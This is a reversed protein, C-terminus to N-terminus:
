VSMLAMSKKLVLQIRIKAMRKRQIFRNRYRLWISLTVNDSEIQTDAMGRYASSHLHSHLHLQYWHVSQELKYMGVYCDYVKQLPLEKQNLKKNTM